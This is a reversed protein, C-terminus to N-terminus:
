RAFPARAAELAADLRAPDATRIAALRAKAEPRPCADLYGAVARRVLPDDHGLTTWLGAVTDIPEWAQMRALDVIAEAAVAPSDLLAATAEAVRARPLTAALNEAAFRLATLLHRQDVPRATPALLGLAALRELGQAGEAVLVGALLGDFGARFDDGPARIATALAGLLRDRVARDAAKAAVIGAALGYFGRRRPDIGPESVWSELAVPDFGDAAACVATFPAQGFETFADAAIAPEPHELRGAFWRLREAPPRTTAPAAAAYGLLAEDAAVATWAIGDASTAGFVLATGTVPGDVRAATVRAGPAQGRLIQDLRFPQALFGDTGPGAAGDAEGVAVVDAADRRMALSDGVVGCFPCGQAADVCTALALVIGFLSARGHARPM